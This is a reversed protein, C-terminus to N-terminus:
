NLNLSLVHWDSVGLTLSVTDGIFPIILGCMLNTYYVHVHVHLLVILMCTCTTRTCTCTYTNIALILLDM